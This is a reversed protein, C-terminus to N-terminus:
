RSGDPRIDVRPTGLRWQTNTTDSEVKLPFSRGRLRVFAQETFQEVPTTSSQVVESAKSQLYQGGPFNRAQLTFDVSPVDSISNEFTLDPILRSIFAFENGQGISIQSSEIYSTIPSVPNTSGDNQGNENQDNDTGAGM